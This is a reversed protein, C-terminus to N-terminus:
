RSRPRPDTAGIRRLAGCNWSGTIRRSVLEADVFAIDNATRARAYKERCDSEMIAPERTHVYGFGLVVVLVAAGTTIWSWRWGARWNRWM